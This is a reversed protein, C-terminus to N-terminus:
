LCFSHGIGIFRIPCFHYYILILRGPSSKEALLTLNKKAIDPTKSRFTIALTMHNEWNEPDVDPIQSLPKLKVIEAYFCKSASSNINRFPFGLLRWPINYDQINHVQPCHVLLVFYTLASGRNLFKQYDRIQSFRFKSITIHVFLYQFATKQSFDLESIHGGLSCRQRHKDPTVNLM